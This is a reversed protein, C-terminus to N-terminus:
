QKAGLSLNPANATIATTSSPKNVAITNTATVPKYDIADTPTFTVSLTQTGTAPVTGAAPAYVFSGPVSATADLQAGSLATGYSIAEPKEWTIKPTAPNVQLTVSAPASAYDSTNAPTFVVSLTQQGAGLVTRKAPSYAFSGAVSAGNYTAKANLQITSLATGYAIIAPTAWSINLASSNVQLKVSAKATEYDTTDTPTFAVSLTQSGGALVKGAAPSYTFRGPVSADANLQTSGLATGYTIAGPQVWTLTPAAKSVTITVAATSTTYDTTDTPRFTVSLIHNGVGLVTGAAPSYVFSGLVASANLQTSSLATGYSIAAPKAWTVAPAAPNVTITAIATSTTYDASATFTVSLTHTGAGLVAGAPPTYTLIGPVTVGNYTAKANLQAGGLPTGYSIAAPAVWTIAPALSNVKLTVSSSVPTYDASSSPSFTVSLTHNGACLITDMAPTYVFKGAVTAGNYTAKADLQTSALATSYTIAAPAAWTIVPAVTTAVTSQAASAALYISDTAWSANLSCTGTGASMTVTTGAITCAGSARILAATSANTSASVTFTTLYPASAPAGAFNVVPVIKDILLTASAAGGSYNPDSSTFFGTVAYHGASTESVPIFSWSGSVAVGGKGTAYGTCSHPNGDYTVTACTVTLQTSPASDQGRGLSAPLAYAGLFNPSLRTLGDADAEPVPATVSISAAESGANLHFNYRALDVFEPNFNWESGGWSAPCLTAGVSNAYGFCDNSTAVITGTSDPSLYPAVSDLPQGILNNNLAVTVQACSLVGIVGVGSLGKVGCNYFTNNYLNIAGSGGGTCTGNGTYAPSYFCSYHAPGDAPDPGMGANYIINNYVNVGGSASPNVTTLNLGDCETDHIVNNYIQINQQPKGNTDPSHFQVGRCATGGIVENYALTENNGQGLYITHYLKSTNGKGSACRTDSAGCGVHNVRNGYLLLNGGTGGMIGGAAGDCYAGTCQMTNDVVRFNAGNFEASFSNGNFTLGAITWYSIPNGAGCNNPYSPSNYDQLARGGGKHNSSPDMWTHLDYTVSNGPYGVITKPNGATGCSNLLLGVVQGWSQSEAETGTITDTSSIGAVCIDGPSFTNKCYTITAWPNGYSGDGSADSGSPSVFFINGARITFPLPNSFGATTALQISGLGSAATSAIQGCAKAYHAPIYPAGPDTWLNITAPVGGLTLTGISGFNEGYVCVFTGNGGQGGTAPGSDLDSYFLVPASAQSVLPQACFLVLPVLLLRKMQVIEM